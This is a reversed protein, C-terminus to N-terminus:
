NLLVIFIYELILNLMGVVICYGLIIGNCLEVGILGWYIKIVFMSLNIVLVNVFLVGLVLDFFFVIVFFFENIVILM